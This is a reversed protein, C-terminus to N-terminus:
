RQERLRRLFPDEDADQLDVVARTSISRIVDESLFPPSGPFVMLDPFRATIEEASAARILKWVGGQGYDYVCWFIPLSAREDDTM